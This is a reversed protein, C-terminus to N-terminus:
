AAYIEEMENLIKDKLYPSLSNETVLDIERGFIETLKNKIEIIQFLSKTDSFRVMLDIDSDPKEDGRAFSGFLAVFVIGNEQCFSSLESNKLIDRKTEVM